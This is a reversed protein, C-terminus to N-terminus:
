SNLMVSPQYEDGAYAKLEEVWELIALRDNECAFGGAPPHSEIFNAMKGAVEQETENPFM